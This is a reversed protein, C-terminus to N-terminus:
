AQGNNLHGSCGAIVEGGGHGGDAAEPSSFVDPCNNGFSLMNPWVGVYRQWKLQRDLMYQLEFLIRIPTRPGNMSHKWWQLLPHNTIRYSPSFSTNCEM